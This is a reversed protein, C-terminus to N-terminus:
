HLMWAAWQDGFMFMVDPLMVLFAEFGKRKRSVCM